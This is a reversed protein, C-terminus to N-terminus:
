GAKWSSKREGTSVKVGEGEFHGVRYKFICSKLLIQDIKSESLQRFFQDKIQTFGGEFPELRNWISHAGRPQQPKFTAWPVENDSFVPDNPTLFQRFHYCSSM